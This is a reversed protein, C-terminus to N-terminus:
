RTVMWFSMDPSRSRGPAPASVTRRRSGANPRVPGSATRRSAMGGSRRWMQAGTASRRSSPVATCRPCRAPAAQRPPVERHSRFGDRSLRLHKLRPHADLHVSASVTVRGFPKKVASGHACAAPTQEASRHIAQCRMEGDCRSFLCSWSVWTSSVRCAARVMRACRTSSWSRGRADFRMSRSPATVRRTADTSASARSSQRRGHRTAHGAGGARTSASRAPACASCPGLSTRCQAPVVKNRQWVSQELLLRAAAEDM